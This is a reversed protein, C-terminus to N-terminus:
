ELQEPHEKRRSKLEWTWLSSKVKFHYCKEGFRVVPLWWLADSRQLRVPSRSVPPHLGPPMDTPWSERPIDLFAAEAAAWPLRYRSSVQLVGGWSTRWVMQFGNGMSVSLVPCITFCPATVTVRHDRFIWMKYTLHYSSKFIFFQQQSSDWLYNAAQTCGFVEVFLLSIVHSFLMAQCLFVLIGVM